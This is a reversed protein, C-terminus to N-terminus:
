GNVVVRWHYNNNVEDLTFECDAATEGNITKWNEGDLSYYWQYTLQAGEPPNAVVATMRIRSGFYIEGDSLNTIKISVDLEAPEEYLPCEAGHAAGEEAGCTCAPETAEPEIYLPCEETHPQGEAAACTCTPEAAESAVPETTQTAETVEAEEHGAAETAETGTPETAESVVPESAAPTETAAPAETPVPTETPAPISISQIVSEATPAPASYDADSTDTAKLVSTRAMTMGVLAVALAMILCIRLVKNHRM